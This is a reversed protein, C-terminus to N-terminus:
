MMYNPETCFFTEEKTYIYGLCWGKRHVIQRQGCIQNNVM